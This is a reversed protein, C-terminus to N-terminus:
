YNKILLETIKGRGDGKSNIARSALVQVQSYEQYLEEIFPCYSNSILVKVGIRTLRDVVEKVRRQDEQSFGTASYGTFSSTASLPEYPPDLYVFDGKSATWLTEEYDCNLISVQNSSLYEQVLDIKDRDLITPSKYYGYPTNFQGKSNVRHLGNFCTKNLYLFRAARKVSSITKFGELRDLARIFYYDDKTKRYGQLEIVLDSLADRIVRYTNILESNSDSVVAQKPQLAFLLAGGGLFPEYYTGYEQPVHSLITPLLQRKGGVWKLYPTLM